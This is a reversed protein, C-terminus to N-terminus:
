LQSINECANIVDESPMFQSEFPGIRRGNPSFRAKDKFQFTFKWTELLNGFKYTCNDRLTRFDKTM